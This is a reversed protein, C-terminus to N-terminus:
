IKPFLKKHNKTIDKLLQQWYKDVSKSVAIKPNKNKLVDSFSLEKEHWLKGKELYIQIPPIIKDLAYIFKSEADERKEYNEIIKVLSKFKPFRKKIKVLAEKERKHKSKAKKTDLFYTDGAYVDVLDHALSYMLCLGKDLKLKDSDILYWAVMALQYSHEVDNEYRDAYPTRAVRYIGRFEHTFEIFDILSEFGPTFGKNKYIKAMASKISRELAVGAPTM